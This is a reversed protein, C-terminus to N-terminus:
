PHTSHCFCWAFFWSLPTYPTAYNKCTCLVAVYRCAAKSPCIIRCGGSGNKRTRVGVSLIGKRERVRGSCIGVEEGGNETNFARGAIKSSESRCKVRSPVCKRFKANVFTSLCNLAFAFSLIRLAIGGSEQSYTLTNLTRRLHIAALSNRLTLFTRM